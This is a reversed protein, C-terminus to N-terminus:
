DNVSAHASASWTEFNNKSNEKKDANTQINDWASKLDERFQGSKKGVPEEYTTFNSDSAAKEFMEFAVKLFENKGYIRSKDNDSASEFGKVPTIYSMATQIFTLVDSSFSETNRFARVDNAKALPAWDIQKKDTLLWKLFARTSNEDVPNSKIGVISPGQLFVVSKPDKAEFKNPTPLAFLENQQLTETTQFTRVKMDLVDAFFKDLKTWIQEKVTKTKNTKNDTIQKEQEEYYNKFVVLAHTEKEQDLKNGVKIFLVDNNQLKELKKFLGGEKFNTLNEDYKTVVVLHKSVDTGVFEKFKDMDETKEFYVDYNSKNKQEEDRFAQESLFIKNY